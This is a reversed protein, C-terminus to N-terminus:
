SLETLEGNYYKLNGKSHVHTTNTLPNSFGKYLNNKSILYSSYYNQATTITKNILEFTNNEVTVKYDTIGYIGWPTDYITNGRIIYRDNANTDTVFLNDSTTGNTVINNEFLKLGRNSWIFATTGVTGSYDKFNFNNDFTFKNNTIYYETDLVAPKLGVNKFNCKDLHIINDSRTYKNNASSLFYNRSNADNKYGLEINSDYFSYIAKYLMTYNAKFNCNFFKNNSNFIKFREIEFNCNNYSINTDEGYLVLYGSLNKFNCNDYSLSKLLGDPTGNFIADYDNYIGIVDVNKIFNCNIFKINNNAYNTSYIIISGNDEFYCNESLLDLNEVREIHYVKQYNYFYSNSVNVKKSKTSESYECIVIGARGSKCGNRINPDLPYMNSVAPYSSFSCNNVNIEVDSCNDDDINDDSDYVIGCRSFYLADGSADVTNDASRGGVNIGKCNDINVKSVFNGSIASSYFLDHFNMNKCNLIRCVARVGGNGGTPNINTSEFNPIIGSASITGNEINCISNIDTPLEINLIGHGNYNNASTYDISGGGLNIEIYDQNLNFNIYNSVKYQENNFQIKKIKKDSVYNALVTLKSYNDNIGDGIIGLQRVNIEDEIILEAILTNDYLSIITMEDIVDTNLIPRVRYFAKGGDNISNFGFTMCKSGNTINEAAKMETVTNYVLLGALGLYQAIIDTLQGSEAMEDLKNNIEEQVDLNDFYNDVYNKLITFQEQLEEVVEGNHNLAPIVNNSLYNVLYTLGEYYSMSELYATPLNGITICFKKFPSVYNIENNM